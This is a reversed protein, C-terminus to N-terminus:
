KPFFSTKLQFERFAKDVRSHLLELAINADLLLILTVKCGLFFAFLYRMKSLVDYASPWLLIAKVIVLKKYYCTIIRM